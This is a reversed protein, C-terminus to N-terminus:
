ESDSEKSFTEYIEDILENITNQWLKPLSAQWVVDIRWQAHESHQIPIFRTDKSSINKASYPLLSVGVDAAVLAILTQIDNAEQSPSISLNEHKLYRQIQQSLKSGREARLLLLPFHTLYEKVSLQPELKQAVALALVESKLTKSVLNDIPKFAFQRTFAIHLEHAQLQKEMEHSPMDDLQIPINPLKERLRAVFFSAEQFTSIGFGVTLKIPPQERLIATQRLFETTQALIEQAYPFLMKGHPTLIAGHRGREFLTIDLKKELLQIQKTLAPQSIYLRLSAERYNKTEALIVFARLLRTDM